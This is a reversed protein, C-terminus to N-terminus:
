KCEQLGRFVFSSIDAFSLFFFIMLICKMVLDGLCPPEGEVTLHHLAPKVKGEVRLADRLHWEEEEEEWYM